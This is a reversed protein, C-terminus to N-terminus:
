GKGEKERDRIQRARGRESGEDGGEDQEGKMEDGDGDSNIKM